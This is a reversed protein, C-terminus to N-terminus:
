YEQQEFEQEETNEFIINESLNSGTSNNYRKM